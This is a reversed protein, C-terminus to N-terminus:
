DPDPGTPTANNTAYYNKFFSAPYNTVPIPFFSRGACTPTCLPFFDSLPINTGVADLANNDAYVPSAIKPLNFNFETFALISGFDHQYIPNLNPCNPPTCPGSIYGGGSTSAGTYESVVLFPVRFGYIYGCGWGNPAGCSFGSGSVQGKWANQPAVHDYFGGWDDWVIFIATPKRATSGSPAVNGWYDCPQASNISNAYSNGIADVINAVWYPGLAPGSSSNPHDSWAADPIVWSIQQLQCNAIDTLIPAGSETSYFSMHSKWNKLNNNSASGCTAPPPYATSSNVGYCVEPISEPATWINGPSPTYYRWSSSFLSTSKDCQALGTTCVAGTVLSDHPYCESNGDGTITVVNRLPDIWSLDVAQTCGSQGGTGNGTTSPNNVVFYQYYNPDNPAVPASTGSFLFQHAPYSPGENTQFMYNAFGYNSAILFYPMADTTNPSSVVYSYPFCPAKYIQDCFQNMSGGNWDYLWDSQQHGPTQAQGANMPYAANCPYNTGNSSTNGMGTSVIDAGPFDGLTGCNNTTPPAHLGFLNDPTRNEQVIIIINSFMGPAIQAAAFSALLSPLLVALARNFLKM